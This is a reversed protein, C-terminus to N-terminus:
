SGTVASTLEGKVCRKAAAPSLESTIAGNVTSDFTNSTRNLVLGSRTIAFQSTLDQILAQAATSGSLACAALLWGVVYRGWCRRADRM